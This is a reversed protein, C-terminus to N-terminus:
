TKKMMAFTEGKKREDEEEEEEEQEERSIFFTVKARAVCYLYCLM